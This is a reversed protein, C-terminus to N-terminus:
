SITKKKRQVQVQPQDKLLKNFNGVDVDLIRDAKARKERWQVDLEERRGEMGGTAPADSEELAEQLNIIQESLGNRFNIVDQFTKSKPQVLENELADVSGKISTAASDIAAKNPAEKSKEAARGVQDRADRLENVTSNLDDLAATLSGLLAHVRAVDADAMPEARPDRRVDFSVTSSSTVSGKWTLTASYRGASVRRGRQQGPGLLGASRTPTEERLDWTFRNTGAKAPLAPRAAAPPGLASQGTAPKTSYSRLLRGQADKFDLSIVTASDPASKLFYTMTAGNPPNRGFGDTPPNAWRGLLASRAPLLVADAAPRVGRSTAIATVDDLIWFSRGETSAVLDGHRAILDTVPVPPLNQSFRMWRTGDDFSVYAGTETGAYLVGKLEPSERVVRVPEGARLGTTILTWTKGYDATRYALVANEGLRDKRFAVYAVAPDFPSAEIANVLGPGWTAATINSWSTGGDRTVHLLGDDTGAWLVNADKPSEAVYYITNYVEGGAGESTIPGGGPGQTAKDNRTLDGSIAAWNRGRDRSRFLINGAHYIVNADHTSVVIPANWNFRYKQLDSPEGLGLAPWVMVNREFGTQQDFEGIIGQYCGGYVYRPSARNFALYASECGSASDWERVTIGFGDSRSQTRVSSNDQQGGYVSYPEADDVNVRYFQATPQNDQTSWSKGGNMSVSAGGDNANALIKPDRPNIWLGHNDGHTANVVAFTKGGDISRTLPANIVWVVDANQPDAVINTYYWARARILRDDSFRRWTKGADDSRYLGGEDAEVIAFVRDPNAPSVAVDIKGILKPLGETLRTWSDGADTSKWIGSGAGGSRVKWPTRQHDWFAAYLIRPNSPDLSLGSAGSTGNEGKLLQTWTKGGDISRYVGRETTGTWRNGQAAVWVIDPNTPHVRVASIQQTADLGLHKWTKGADTSRYVGNGFSSSQGRVAHEGTGVYVVNADSEAVAIAGISGLRFQSDSINKWTLGADDTKWVGGGTYGTYFVMPQSPVGAIANARGGRFPGISRWQLAAFSTSDFVAPTPTPAPKQAVAVAPLAALVCLFVFTRM